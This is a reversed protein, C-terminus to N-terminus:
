SDPTRVFVKRVGLPKELITRVTWGCAVLPIRMEEGAAEAAEVRAEYERTWGILCTLYVAESAEKVSVSHLHWGWGHRGSFWLERPNERLWVRAIGTFSPHSTLPDPTTLPPANPRREPGIRDQTWPPDDTLELFSGALVWQTDLVVWMQAGVEDFEYPRPGLPATALLERVVGGEYPSQGDTLLSDMWWGPAQKVEGEMSGVGLWVVREEPTSGLAAAWAEALSSGVV